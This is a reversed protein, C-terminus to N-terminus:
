VPWLLDTASHDQQNPRDDKYYLLADDTSPNTLNTSGGHLSRTMKGYSQAYVHQHGHIHGTYGVIRHKANKVVKIDDPVRERLRYDEGKEKFQHHVVGKSVHVPCPVRKQPPNPDKAQAYLDVKTYGTGTYLEELASANGGAKMTSEALPALNTTDGYTKGYIHNDKAPIYGQYGPIRHKETLSDGCPRADGYQLFANSRACMDKGHGGEVLQSTTSGYSLAYMHMAAHQHGTYGPLSGKENVEATENPGEQGTFFKKSQYPLVPLSATKTTTMPHPDNGIVTEMLRFDKVGLSENLLPRRKGVHAPGRRKDEEPQTLATQAYMFDRGQPRSDVLSSMGSPNNGHSLVAACDDARRTAETYRKGILHNKMGPIYGQYGPIRGEDPPPLSMKSTM